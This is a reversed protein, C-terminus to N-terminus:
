SLPQSLDPSPNLSTSLSRSLYLSTSLPPSLCKAGRRCRRNEWVCVEQLPEFKNFLAAITPYLSMFTLSLVLMFAWLYLALYQGGVQALTQPYPPIQAHPYARGSLEQSWHPTLYQGGVKAL